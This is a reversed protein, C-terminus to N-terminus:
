QFYNLLMSNVFQRDEDTLPKNGYRDALQLLYQLNLNKPERGLVYDATVGFYDAIKAIADAKLERDGIEYMRMSSESCGIVTALERRSVRRKERLATVIEGTTMM